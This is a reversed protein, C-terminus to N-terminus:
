ATSTGSKDNLDVKSKSSSSPNSILSNIPPNKVGGMVAAAQAMLVNVDAPRDSFIMTNSNAGMEGYM